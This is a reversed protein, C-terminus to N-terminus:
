CELSGLPEIGQADVRKLLADVRGHGPVLADPAIEALPVLVFAREHLRPHPVCLGPHAIVTDGYLLLDLDLARPGWRESQMDRDRGAELEIRLLEALLADASLTTSLLAAANLFDPQATMGWAPTRYLRSRRLVLTGPLGGLADLAHEITSAVDGLNGGLGVCALVPSESLAPDNAM